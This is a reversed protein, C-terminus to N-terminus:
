TRRGGDNAHGIKTAVVIIKVVVVVVVIWIPARANENDGSELSVFCVKRLLLLTFLLCWCQLCLFPRGVDDDDADGADGVNKNCEDDGNFLWSKDPPTNKSPGVSKLSRDDRDGNDCTPRGGFEGDGDLDVDLLLLLLGLVLVMGLSTTIMPPPRAPREVARWMDRWELLCIVMRSFSSGLWCFCLVGAADKAAAPISAGWLSRRGDPGSSM